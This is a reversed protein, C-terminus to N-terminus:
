AGMATNLVALICQGLPGVLQGDATRYHLAPGLDVGPGFLLWFALAIVGAAGLAALIGQGIVGFVEEV